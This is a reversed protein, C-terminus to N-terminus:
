PCNDRTPQAWHETGPSHFENDIEPFRFILKSSSKKRVKMDISSSDLLSMTLIHRRFSFKSFKQFNQWLRPDDICEAEKLGLLNQVFLQFPSYLWIQDTKHWRKM